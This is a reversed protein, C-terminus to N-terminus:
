TLLGFHIQEVPDRNVNIHAHPARSLQWGWTPCVLHNEDVLPRVEAGCNEALANCDREGSSVRVRVKVKPSVTEPGGWSIGKRAMGARARTCAGLEQGCGECSGVEHNHYGRM